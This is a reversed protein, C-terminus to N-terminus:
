SRLRERDERANRISLNLRRRLEELFAAGGGIKCVVTTGFDEIAYIAFSTVPGAGGPYRKVVVPGCKSNFAIPVRLKVLYRRDGDRVFPNFMYDTYDGRSRFVLLSGPRDHVVFANRWRRTALTRMSCRAVCDGHAKGELSVATLNAASTTLSMKSADADASTASSSSAAGFSSAASTPLDTRYGAQIELTATSTKRSFM